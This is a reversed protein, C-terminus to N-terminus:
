PCTAHAIMTISDFGECYIVGYNLGIRDHEVIDLLTVLRLKM